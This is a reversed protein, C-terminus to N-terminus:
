AHPFELNWTESELSFGLGSNWTVEAASVGGNAPLEHPTFPADNGGHALDDSQPKTNM